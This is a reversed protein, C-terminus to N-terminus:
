NNEEIHFLHLPIELQFIPGVVSLFSLIYKEPSVNGFVNMLNSTECPHIGFGIKGAITEM